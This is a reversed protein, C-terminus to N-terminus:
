VSDAAENLPSGAAAPAAAVGQGAKREARKRRAEEREAERKLELNVRDQAVRAGLLFGIFMGVILVAPIFIFHSSTM